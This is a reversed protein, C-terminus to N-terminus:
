ALQTAHQISLYMAEYNNLIDIWNYNKEVIIKGRTGMKQMTESNNILTLIAEALKKWDRPPVLLGTYGNVVVESIAGVNTAVVPKGTAAAELISLPLGESLSPRHIQNPKFNQVSLAM